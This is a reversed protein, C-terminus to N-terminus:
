DHILEGTFAKQLLSQFLNDCLIIQESKINISKLLISIANSFEKQRRIDPFLVDFEKIDSVNIHGVTSGNTKRLAQKYM